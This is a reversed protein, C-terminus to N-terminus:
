GASSGSGITAAAMLVFPGKKGSSLDSEKIPLKPNTLAYSDPSSSVLAEAPSKVDLSRALPFVTAIDQMVRVIAHQGYSGSVPSLQGFLRSASSLDLTVDGNPTVGWE